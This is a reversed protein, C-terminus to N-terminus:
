NYPLSIKSSDMLRNENRLTLRRPLKRTTSKNKL